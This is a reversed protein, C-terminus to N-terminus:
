NKISFTIDYGNSVNNWLNIRISINVFQTHYFIEKKNLISESLQNPMEINLANNYLIQSYKTMEKLAVKEDEIECIRMRLILENVANRDGILFLCISPSHIKDKLLIFENSISSFESEYTNDYDGFDFGKSVFLNKFFYPSWGKGSQVIPPNREEKQLSKILYITQLIDKKEFLYKAQIIKRWRKIGDIDWKFYIIAKSIAYRYTESNKFHNKLTVSINQFNSYWTITYLFPVLLISLIIPIIFIQFNGWSFLFEHNYFVNRIIMFFFMLYILISIGKLFRNVQSYEKKQDSIAIMGGLLFFLPILLFEVLFSFTFNDSLYEIFLSFGFIPKVIDKFFSKVNKIQISKFMLMTSVFLTWSLTDKLNLGTWINLSKLLLVIGFIYFFLFIYIKVFEISFLQKVLNNFETRTSKNFVIFIYLICVWTIIACERSNLM